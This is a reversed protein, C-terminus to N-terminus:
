PVVVIEPRLMHRKGAPAAQRVHVHDLLDGPRPPRQPVRSCERKELKCVPEEAPEIADVRAVLDELRPQTLQVIVQLFADVGAAFPDGHEPTVRHLHHRAAPKFM